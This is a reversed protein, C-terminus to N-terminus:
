PFINGHYQHQVLMVIIYDLIITTLQCIDSMIALKEKARRMGSFAQQQWKELIQIRLPSSRSEEFLIKFMQEESRKRNMEELIEQSVINLVQIMKLKRDEIKQRCINKSKAGEEKPTM